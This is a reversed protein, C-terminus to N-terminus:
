AVEGLKKLLAEYIGIVKLQLRYDHYRISCTGHYIRRHKGGRVKTITPKIFQKKPIDLLDSWFSKVSKFDHIDHIQLHVRLKAEDLIFSKRLLKIFVKLLNPDSNTLELKNTAPYKSGECGYIIAALIKANEVEINKITDLTAIESVRLEQRKRENSRLLTDWRTGIYEDVCWNRITTAPIGTVRQLHAFSYGQSKRLEIAKEIEEDLYKRM